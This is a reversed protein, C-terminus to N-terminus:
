AQGQQGPRGAGLRGARPERLRAAATPSSLTDAKQPSAGRLGGRPHPAGAVTKEGLLGLSRTLSCEGLPQPCAPGQPRPSLASSVCIPTDLLNHGLSTKQTHVM